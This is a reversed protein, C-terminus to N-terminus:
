NYHHIHAQLRGNTLQWSFLLMQRALCVLILDNIIKEIVRAKCTPIKKFAIKFYGLFTFRFFARYNRLLAQCCENHFNNFRRFVVNTLVQAYVFGIRLPIENNGVKENPLGATINSIFTPLLFTVKSGWNRTERSPLGQDKM